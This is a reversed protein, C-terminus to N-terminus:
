RLFSQIESFLEERLRLVDEIDIEDSQKVPIKLKLVTGIAEIEEAPISFEVELGKVVINVSVPFFSVKLNRVIGVRRALSDVVEKGLIKGPMQLEYFEASTRQDTKTMNPGRFRNHSLLSEFGRGSRTEKRATNALFGSRLIM